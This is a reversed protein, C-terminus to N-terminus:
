NTPTSTPSEDSAIVIDRTTADWDTKWRNSISKAISEISQNLRLGSMLTAWECVYPGRKTNFTWRFYAHGGDIVLSLRGFGLSERLRGYIEGAVRYSEYHANDADRWLDSANDAM